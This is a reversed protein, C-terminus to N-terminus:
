EEDQKEDRVWRSNKLLFRIQKGTKEDVTYMFGDADPEQGEEQPTGILDGLTVEGSEEAADGQEQDGVLSLSIVGLTRALEVKKADKETVLVTVTTESSVSSREGTAQTAGAVSLIKVFRVITAVKQRGEHTYTWLIDVRSNPQAFGEVGSRSDVTITVARYGPPIRITSAPKTASLDDMVLPINPSIQRKAYMGVISDRDKTRVVAMPAKDADMPISVFLSPEIRAGEEIRTAATLVEMTPVSSLSSAEVETAAVAAEPTQSNQYLLVLAVGLVVILTGLCALVWKIKTAQTNAPTVAGFRAAM